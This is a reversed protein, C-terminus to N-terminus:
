WYGNESDDMLETTARSSLRCYRFSRRMTFFSHMLRSDTTVVTATAPLPLPVTVPNMGPFTDPVETKTNWVLEFGLELAADHLPVSRKAMADVFGCYLLVTAATIAAYADPEGTIATPVPLQV